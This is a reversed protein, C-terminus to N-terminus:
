TRVYTRVERNDRVRSYVARTRVRSEWRAWGRASGLFRSRPIVWKVPPTLWTRSPNERLYRVGSSTCRASVFALRGIRKLRLNLSESGGRQEIRRRPSGSPRRRTPETVRPASNRRETVESRCEPGEWERSYHTVKKQREIAGLSFCDPFSTYRLRAPGPIGIQLIPRQALFIVAFKRIEGFCIGHERMHM